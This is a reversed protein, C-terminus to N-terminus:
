RTILAVPDSGVFDRGAIFPTRLARPADQIAYSFRLGLDDGLRVLPRGGTNLYDLDRPRWRAEADVIPKDFVPLLHKYVVFTTPYLRTGSGGALIICLAGVARVSSIVARASTDAFIHSLPLNKPLHKGVGALVRTSSAAVRLPTPSRM